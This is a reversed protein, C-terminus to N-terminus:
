SYGNKKIFCFISDRSSIVPDNVRQLAREESHKDLQPLAHQSLGQILIIHQQENSSCAAIWLDKFDYTFHGDFHTGRELSAQPNKLHHGIDHIHRM